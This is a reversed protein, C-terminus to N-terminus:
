VLGISVVCVAATPQCCSGHQAGHGSCPWAAASSLLPAGPNQASWSSQAQLSDGPSQGPHAAPLRADGSGEEWWSRPKEGRHEREGPQKVPAQVKPVHTFAPPVRDKGLVPALCVTSQNVLQLVLCPWLSAPAHGGAAEVSGGAQAAQRSLRVQAALPPARAAPRLRSSM